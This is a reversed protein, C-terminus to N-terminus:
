SIGFFNSLDSIAKIPTNPLSDFQMLDINKDEFMFVSKVIEDQSM